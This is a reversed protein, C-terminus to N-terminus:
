VVKEYCYPYAFNCSRTPAITLSLVSSNYRLNLNHLLIKNYEATNSSVIFRGDFLFKYKEDTKGVGELNEKIRMIEDYTDADVKVSM